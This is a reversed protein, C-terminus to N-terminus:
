AGAPVVTATFESRVDTVGPEGLMVVDCDVLPTVALGAVPELPVAPADVVM